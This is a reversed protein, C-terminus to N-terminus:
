AAKESRFALYSHEKCYPRGSVSRSGCCRPDCARESEMPWRCSFKDADSLFIGIPENTERRKREPFFLVAREPSPIEKVGPSNRKLKIAEALPDDMVPMLGMNSHRIIYIISAVQGRSMNFHKSIETYSIGNLYLSYIDKKLEVSHTM